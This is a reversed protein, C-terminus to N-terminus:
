KKEGSWPQTFGRDPCYSIGYIKEDLLYGSHYYSSSQDRTTFGFYIRDWETNIYADELTSGYFSGKLTSESAESIEFIQLYPEAEPTPRLDITWSGELSSTQAMCCHSIIISLTILLHRM